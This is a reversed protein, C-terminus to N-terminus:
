PIYSGNLFPNLKRERGITTAQMHGAYVKVDDPLVMLKNKISNILTDYDGGPLDTRGISDYFLVDGGIIYKDKECYFCVSAPSHGPTFFVKLETNGFQVIAGEDVFIEPDPSQQYYIGFTPAYNIVENLVPVEGKHMMLPVTYKEAIFKNGLVHDIHCHTNILYKPTLKHQTIFDTIEEKEEKTYHGPDIIVCEGTEDWLVYSNEYFPNVTFSAIRSM